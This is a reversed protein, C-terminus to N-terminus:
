SINISSNGKLFQEKLMELQHKLSADIVTDSLKVIFGGLLEQNISYTLRVKKGTYEELRNKLKDKQDATLDVASMVAANTIGLKQDRLELFRAAIKYLLDERNKRIIFQIFNMTILGIQGHFISELVAHKKDTKIVPSILMVQLQRSKELTNYILEMDGSIEEFANKEEALQLLANAYRTTINLNGM